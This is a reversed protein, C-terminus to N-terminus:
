TLTITGSNAIIVWTTNAVVAMMTMTQAAATASAANGTTITSSGAPGWIIQGTTYTVKWGNTNLASGVINIIDGVASTAPLTFTTLASDNAIYTGQSVLAQSAGAVSTVAFGGSKVNIALSAAGGTFTLGTSTTLTGFAPNAGTSGILVQGNTGATTAVISSTGEGILVGHATYTAPTYPGILSFTITSGSGSSTIQNATGALTINGTSPSIAGGSDGTLTALTSSAATAQWNATVKGASSSFSTLVYTTNSSKNVWLQGLAFTGSPGTVNSSSPAVTSIFPICGIAGLPANGAGVTNVSLGQNSPISM